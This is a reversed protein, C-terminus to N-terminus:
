AMARRTAEYAMMGAGNAVVSRLCAPVVGRFLGRLGQTQFVARFRQTVTPPSTSNPSEVTQAQIRTKIVELPMVLLWAATAAGGGTVFGNVLPPLDKRLDRTGHIITFFSGLLLCNRAVTVGFGSYLSQFNYTQHTQRRVKALEIPSEFVARASGALAGGLFCDYWMLPRSESSVRAVVAAYVSFQVSRLLGAGLAPPVVGRYLGVVGESRLTERAVQVLTPSKMAKLGGGGSVRNGAGCEGDGVGAGVRSGSSAQMKTKITDLPQGVLVATIGSAWGSVFGVIPSENNM